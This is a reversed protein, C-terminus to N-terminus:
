STTALQDRYGYNKNLREMVYDGFCVSAYKPPNAASACTPLCSIEADMSMDWFYPISYRHHESINRVRHATSTWRNNTWRSLMDAVNIVFTEPMPTATIWEGDRTRVELGGIADQALITLFGYDTHPAAGFQAADDAPQPPYHLLRLWTTPQQFYADFHNESLKLAQALLRTIRRALARLAVEYREITARFEPLEQPWQNPGQLPQGYRPDDATVEHMLMLSESLNPRTVQAVSSTKILSTKPAIYGRHFANISLGQKTDDDLAHFAHAARFATDVDTWNIGTDAVYCFGVNTFADDFAEAAASKATASAEDGGLSIIPLGTV